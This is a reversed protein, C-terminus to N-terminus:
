GKKAEKVFAEQNAAVHHHGCETLFHILAAANWMVKSLHLVTGGEANGGLKAINAHRLMHNYTEGIPMGKTWNDEGYKRAGEACVKAWAELATPCCLDFREGDAETDRQAGSAYTKKQAASPRLFEQAQKEPPRLPMAQVAQGAGFDRYTNDEGMPVEVKMSKSPTNAQTSVTDSNM